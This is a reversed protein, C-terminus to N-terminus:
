EIVEDALLLVAPWLLIELGGRRSSGSLCIERM